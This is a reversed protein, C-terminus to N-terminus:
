DVFIVVPRHGESLTHLGGDAPERFVVLVEHRHVEVLRIISTVNIPWIGRFQSALHTHLNTHKHTHTRAHTRAHTSAHMSAHTRTDEHIQHHYHHSKGAVTQKLKSLFTLLRMFDYCPRHIRFNENHLDPYFVTSM